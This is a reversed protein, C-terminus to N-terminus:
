VEREDVLQVAQVRTGPRSDGNAEMNALAQEAQYRNEYVKVEWLGNVVCTGNNAIVYLPRM